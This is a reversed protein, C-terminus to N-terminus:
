CASCGRKTLLNICPQHGDQGDAQQICLKRLVQHYRSSHTTTALAPQQEQFLLGFQVGVVINTTQQRFLHCIAVTEQGCAEDELLIADWRV